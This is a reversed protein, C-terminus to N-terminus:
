SLQAIRRSIGGGIEGPSGDTNCDTISLHKSLSGLWLYWEPPSTRAASSVALVADREFRIVNAGLAPCSAAVCAACDRRSHYPTAATAASTMTKAPSRHPPLFGCAGVTPTGPAIWDSATSGSSFREPSGACSYKASPIVSASM